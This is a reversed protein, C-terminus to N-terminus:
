ESLAEATADAVGLACLVDRARGRPVSVRTPMGGSLGFLKLFNYGSDFRAAVAVNETDIVVSVPEREQGLLLLLTKDLRQYGRSVNVIAVGPAVRM